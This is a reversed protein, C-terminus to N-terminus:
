SRAYKPAIIIKFTLGDAPFTDVEDGAANFVVFWGYFTGATNVDDAAFDYQVVGNAADVLTATALAVKSVGAATAMCFKVTLGTLNVAEYVGSTNKQEVIAQLPTKTDGQTLRHITEEAM